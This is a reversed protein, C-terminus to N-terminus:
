LGHSKQLTAKISKWYFKSLETANSKSPHRFSSTHNNYRTKFETECCGFYKLTENEQRNTSIKNRPNPNTPGSTSPQVINEKQDETISAEYVISNMRCNGNLPCLSENRCNCSSNETSQDNELIHKNHNIITGKM